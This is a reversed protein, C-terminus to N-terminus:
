YAVVTESQFLAKLVLTVWWDKWNGKSFCAHRSTTASSPYLEGLLSDM